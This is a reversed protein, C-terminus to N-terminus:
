CYNLFYGTTPQRRMPQKIQCTLPWNTPSLASSWLSQMSLFQHFTAYYYYYYDVSSWLGCESFTVTNQADLLNWRQHIRKSPIPHRLWCFLKTHSWRCCKNWRVSLYFPFSLAVPYPMQKRKSTSLKILQGFFPFTLKYCCWQCKLNSRSSRLLRTMMEDVM